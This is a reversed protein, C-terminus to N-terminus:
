CDFASPPRGFRRLGPVFLRPKVSNSYLGPEVVVVDADDPVLRVRSGVRSEM